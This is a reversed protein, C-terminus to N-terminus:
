NISLIVSQGAKLSVYVIKQSGYNEVASCDPCTTTFPLGTVPVRVDRNATLTISSDPLLTATVEAAKYDTRKSMNYGLRDMAGQTCSPDNACLPDNKPISHGGDSIIPLTYYRNYKVLTADLLDSLLSHTGDYARLNPQHFMLPDMDGKLLYTLMLNSERDLIQQYNKANWLDSDPYFCHDEALWEDPTTVNFYQDTPHRPILFINFESEQNLYIGVNPAPNKYNPISTNSVLYRINMDYIAKLAASNKLGSVNPTILSHSSYNTPTVFGVKHATSNNQVIQNKM